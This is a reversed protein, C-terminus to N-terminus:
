RADQEARASNSLLTMASSYTSVCYPVLFTLVVQGWFALGLNGNVIEAAHNFVTLIPTVVLAVKTARLVTSRRSAQRLFLRAGQIRM